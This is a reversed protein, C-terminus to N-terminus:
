DHHKKEKERQEEETQKRLENMFGASIIGSPLAIIAIGFISSLMTVLRGTTTVPYIDGYGIATLSITAWYVADFYTNFSDPEVNFIVLAALLIYAIAIVGVTILPKKHSSFVSSIMKLTKSYRVVKFARFVRLTMLLSIVRVVGLNRYLPDISPVICILDLLAMPTVPYLLFSLKGKGLKYDATMWRLVYDVCFVGAVVEDLIYFAPYKGKVTLPILGAVIMIMMFIDYANSLHDGDVAAEVIQFIRKRM